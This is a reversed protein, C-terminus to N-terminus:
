RLLRAPVNRAAQAGAGRGLVCSRACVHSAPSATRAFRRRRQTGSARRREIANGALVAVGASDYGRYELRKLGDVLRGSVTDTGTIAVIGCM